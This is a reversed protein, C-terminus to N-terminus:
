NGEVTAGSSVAERIFQMLKDIEFIISLLFFFLFRRGLMVEKEGESVDANIINVM